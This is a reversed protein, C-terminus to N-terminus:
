ATATQLWYVIFLTISYSLLIVALGIVAMKIINQANEVKKEEGMATMWLFGAYVVMILFVLGLISLVTKIVDAVVLRPDKASLKSAQGATDLQDLLVKGTDGVPGPSTQALSVAPSLVAVLSTILLLGFIIKKM